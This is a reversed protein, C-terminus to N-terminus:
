RLPQADNQIWMRRKGDNANFTSEDHTVLIKEKEGAPIEKLIISSDEVWERLGSHFLQEIAPLFVEQRYRVVDEREHGDIYVGKRVNKFEFGLKNLWNRATRESISKKSKSESSPKYFLVNDVEEAKDTIDEEQLYETIAEDELWSYISKNKGTLGVKIYRSSIWSREWSRLRKATNTARGFSEAVVLSLSERTEWSRKLQLQMFRLVATHRMLNQGVPAGKKSRLLKKLNEVASELDREKNEAQTPVAGAVAPQVSLDSPVESTNPNKFYETILATGTAAMQLDLKRKKDRWITQRSQQSGRYYKITPVTSDEIVSAKLKAFADAEMILEQDLTEWAEEIDSDELEELEELEPVETRKQQHRHALQSAYTAARCVRKKRTLRPM